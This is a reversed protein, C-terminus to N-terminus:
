HVGRGESDAVQVALESGWRSKLQRAGAQSSAPLASPCRLRPARRMKLGNLNSCTTKLAACLIPLPIYLQLDIFKCTM